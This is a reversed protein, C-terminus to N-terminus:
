ERDILVAGVQYAISLAFPAQLFASWIKSLDDLTLPIPTIKVPDEQQALESTMAGPFAMYQAQEESDAIRVRTLFPEEHLRRIVSGLLLHPELRKDDGYFTLLYHLDVAVQERIDTARWAAHPSVHYLFLNVRPASSDADERQPREIAVRAGSVVQVADALIAQLAATAAAISLYNSM